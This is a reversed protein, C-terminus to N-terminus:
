AELRIEPSTDPHQAIKQCEKATSIWPKSEPSKELREMFQEGIRQLDAQGIEKQFTMLSLLLAAATLM